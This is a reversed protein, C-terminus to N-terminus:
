RNIWIVRFSVKMMIQHILIVRKKLVQLNRSETSKPFMFFSNHHHREELCSESDNFDDSMSFKDVRSINGRKPWSMLPHSLVMVLNQSLISSIFGMKIPESLNEPVEYTVFRNVFFRRIPKLHLRSLNFSYLCGDEIFDTIDTVSASSAGLFM